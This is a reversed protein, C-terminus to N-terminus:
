RNLPDQRATAPTLQQALALVIGEPGRVYCLRYMDQYQVIKDLVEAGHKRLRAVTDDVDDVAFMVRYFGLTNPPLVKPETSIAKPRRYRTLELRGHGDPTRMMCIDTQVNDLGVCGDVFDGEVTAEGEVTLGLELFFAITAALDEVVIAVNDMRQVAMSGVYSMQIGSRM